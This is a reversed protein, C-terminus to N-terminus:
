DQTWHQLKYKIEQPIMAHDFSMKTPLSFNGKYSKFAEFNQLSLLAFCIQLTLVFDFRVQM